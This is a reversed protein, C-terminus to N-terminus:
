TPCGGLSLSRPDPPLAGPADAHTDTEDDHAADALRAALWQEADAPKFLKRPNLLPPPNMRPAPPPIAAFNLALSGNLIELTSNLRRRITLRTGPSPLPQGPAVQFWQNEFRVTFDNNMTRPEEWAFIADLDRPGVVRHADSPLAPAVMFRDNFPGIWTKLFENAAVITSIGALRMDKILRDQLTGNMREVRGKAQPSHARIVGIELKRCVESFTSQPEIGARREEATADRASVFTSKRDVYVSGPIGHSEIWSKLLRMAAETTEQASFLLGCRGTADDIIVM